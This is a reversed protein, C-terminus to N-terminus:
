CTSVTRRYAFGAILGVATALALSGVPRRRVARRLGAVLDEGDYARVYAATSDLKKGAEHALDGIATAGQDVASRASDAASELSESAQGRVRQITEQIAETRGTM